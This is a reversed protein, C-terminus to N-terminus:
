AADALTMGALDIAPDRGAILDAVIRASGHSMTWGMHGQGCNLWLNRHRARGLIPPGKPTMPRLGAWMRGTSWDAADPFLSRGVKMMHAFDAPRHSADYGAFEATACLRFRDGIPLWAALYTEDVGPVRPTTERGAGAFTVGYGKVPYIPLALGVGRAVIPAHSGLALVYADATLEGRDTVVKEIRDGEAVLREVTTGWRFTAGLRGACHRALANAFMHCDGSEDGPAHIAGVIGDRVMRPEIEGIRKPDCVELAVGGDVLTRSAAVGRAFHAEDRFLYLAGRTARDHPLDVDALTARLRDKSYLCLRLKIRTGRLAAESTCARLFRLSWAYLLPDARFRFRLATDGRWLSRLLIGPARPSNWTYAHGPAIMGSNSFSTENAALPQRDVLEVEHGDKALEYATTVGVIGGGLVIIRM